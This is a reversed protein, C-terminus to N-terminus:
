TTASIKIVPITLLTLRVSPISPRALETVSTTPANRETQANRKSNRESERIPASKIPPSRPKRTYLKWGARTKIPSVPDNNRPPRTTPANKARLKAVIKVVDAVTINATVAGRPDVGGAYSVNTGTMLIDRTITDLTVGAQKGLLKTAEIITNDLSTLELVDSQVIYYGYQEVTAELKTVELAGPEPTVGEQIPTTAKPLSSFKRFEITKGGNKPIPRKQGFQNYVLQPSAEDILTMDYFTKMEVSLSGNATGTAMTGSAVTGNVSNNILAFAQLDITIYM